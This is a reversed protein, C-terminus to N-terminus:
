GKFGAAELAAKFGELSTKLAALAQRQLGPETQAKADAVAKPAAALGTKIPKVDIKAKKGAKVAEALQKQVAPVLAAIDAALATSETKAAELGTASDATAKNATELLAKALEKTKGYD